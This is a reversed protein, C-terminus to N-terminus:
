LVKKTAFEPSTPLKLLICVLNHQNEFISFEQENGNHTKIPKSNVMQSESVHQLHMQFELFLISNLFPMLVVSGPIRTVVWFIAGIRCIGIEDMRDYQVLRITENSEERDLKREHKMVFNVAYSPQINVTNVFQETLCTDHLNRKCSCTCTISTSKTMDFIGTSIFSQSLYKFKKKLRRWRNKRTPNRMCRKSQIIATDNLEGTITPM